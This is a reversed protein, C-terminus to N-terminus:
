FSLFLDSVTYSRKCDLSVEEMDIYKELCCECYGPKRLKAYRIPLNYQKGNQTIVDVLDKRIEKEEKKNDKEELPSTLSPKRKTSMPQSPKAFPCTLIATDMYLVPIPPSALGSGTKVPKFEKFFPRHVGSMDEILVYPWQFSYYSNSQKSLREAELGNTLSQGAGSIRPSQRLTLNSKGRVDDLCMQLENVGKNRRGTSNGASQYQGKIFVCLEACSSDFSISSL